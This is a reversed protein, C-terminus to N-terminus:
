RDSVQELMDMIAQINARQEEQKRAQYRQNAALQKKLRDFKTEFLAAVITKYVMERRQQKTEASKRLKKLNRDCEAPTMNDIKVQMALTADFSCPM